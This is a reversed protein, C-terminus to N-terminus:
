AIAARPRLACSLDSLAQNRAGGKITTLVLSLSQERRWSRDNCIARWHLWQDAGTSWSLCDGAPLPASWHREIMAPVSEYRRLREWSEPPPADAFRASM